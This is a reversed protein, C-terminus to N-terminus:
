GFQVTMRREKASLELWIWDGDPVQRIGKATAGSATRFTGSMTTPGTNVLGFKLGHPSGAAVWRAHAAEYEALMMTLEEPTRDVVCDDEDIYSATPREPPGEFYEVLQNNADVVIATRECSSLSERGRTHRPFGHNTRPRCEYKM